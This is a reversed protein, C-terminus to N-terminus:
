TMEPVAVSLAPLVAAGADFQIDVFGESLKSQMRGSRLHFPQFLEFDGDRKRTVIATRPMTTASEGAVSAGIAGILHDRYRVSSAPFAMDADHRDDSLVGGTSLIVDGAFPAITEVDAILTEPRKLNGEPDRRDRQM